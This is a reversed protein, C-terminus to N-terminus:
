YYVENQTQFDLWLLVIIGATKELIKATKQNAAAANV